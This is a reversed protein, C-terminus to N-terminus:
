HTTLQLVIKHDKYKGVFQQAHKQNMYVAHLLTDSSVYM